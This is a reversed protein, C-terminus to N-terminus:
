GEPNGTITPIKSEGISTPNNLTVVPGILCDTVDYGTISCAQDIVCCELSSNIVTAEPFVVSHEITADHITAGEMIQVGPGIQSHEVTATPALWQDGDLHWNVADLYSAPTGIDFWVGEFTFARLTMQQHLWQLFWGPEDPNEGATLYTNLLPLTTAPFGYCALSVLTSRPEAPKEQFDVVESGELEVLGYRKAKETSQIDYAALVPTRESKFFDIFESLDFDIVNDGAIVVVDDTISEAEILKALAGVVGLKEEEATTDEVSVTPKEFPSRRLYWRFDSAFKANTSIYVDQIREDEELARLPRDIVVQEGLPLLMKPRHQTLPWLRTAYGGALVIADM